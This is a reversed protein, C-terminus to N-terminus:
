ILLLGKPLHEDEVTVKMEFGIALNALAIANECIYAEESDRIEGKAVTKYFDLHLQLGENFVAEENNLIGYLAMSM